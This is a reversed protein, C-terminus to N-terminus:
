SVIDLVEDLKGSTEGSRVINVFFDSFIKPRRAFADSLFDGANVEATMDAIMNQLTLNNTQDILIRLSEVVTVGASIMVSFQRSFIVLDKGKIPNLLRMLRNELSNTVDSLSSVEIGQGRLTALAENESINVLQGIKNKGNADRGKYQFISM